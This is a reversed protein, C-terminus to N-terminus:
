RARDAHLLKVSDPVRKNKPYTCRRRRIEALLEVQKQRAQEQQLAAELLVVVEDSVSRNRTQALSQIQVYLEDPVNRVHLIAM